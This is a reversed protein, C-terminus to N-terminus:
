RGGTSHNREVPQFLPEVAGTTLSRGGGALHAATKIPGSTCYQSLSGLAAPVGGSLNDDWTSTVYVQWRAGASHLLFDEGCPRLVQLYASNRPYSVEPLQREPGLGLTKRIEAPIGGSLRFGIVAWAGSKWHRLETAGVGAAACREGELKLEHGAVAGLAVGEWEALPTEANWKLNLTNSLM